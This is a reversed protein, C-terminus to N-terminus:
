NVEQINFRSANGHVVITDTGGQRKVVVRYADGSTVSIMFNISATQEGRGTTRNYTIATTGTVSSFSGGSPKKQLEIECDSRSSGSTIKTTVDASFRFIGTKNITVEGASEVFVSNNSNLTVTDFDITVFTGTFAASDSSRFAQFYESKLAITGSADPVTVTRDATPDTIAITLEHADGTAGEFKLSSIPDGFFIESVNNIKFQDAKIDLVTKLEGAKQVKYILRSDETGDTMDEIKVGMSGYVIEEGADNRGKFQVDGLFDGDAPSASNRDLTLIPAATAGDDTSTLTGNFSGGGGGSGIGLNSPTIKKMTGGDDILVFDADSSSTTTTPTDSNGTTLVTGTADPLTITRDSTPDTVTLTTENSDSTAGEFRINKGTAINLGSDIVYAINVNNINFSISQGAPSGIITAGASSQLFAYGTGTAHDIHGFSAYDTFIGGLQNRGIQSSADTDIAGSSLVVQGTADPLTITRDATPDAVTLTTENGDDTSGEFSLNVGTHLAVNKFFFNTGYGADYYTTMTGNINAQLRLLGDESGDTTDTIVSQIKAYTTENDGADEGKFSITGLLDNTAPSSSNRTLNFSPGETADTDYATLTMSPDVSSTFFTHTVNGDSNCIDFLKSDVNSKLQLRTSANDGSQQFQWSRDTAFTLLADGSNGGTVTLGGGITADGNSDQLVVTGSADPLTITRDATPGAVTLSTEFDNYANGEFQIKYAAGIYLDRYFQVLNFSLRFGVMEGGNHLVMFDMQGYEAGDTVGSNKVDIRAYEIKEDADNEAFWQIQGIDDSNAPSASNRYLSLTPAATAGADTSLLTLDGNFTIDAKSNDSVNRKFIAMDLDQPTANGYNRHRIIVDDENNSTADDGTQLVLSTQGAVAQETKIQTNGDTGHSGSFQINSVGFIANSQMNLLRSFYIQGGGGNFSAYQTLTGNEMAKIILQASETGDSVDTLDTMMQIYDVDQSNDNRGRFIIEGIDDSDAPSASNRYLILSPDVSAGADTSEITLDQYSTHGTSTLQLMNVTNPSVTGFGSFLHTGYNDGNRSIYQATGDTSRLTVIENTGEAILRINATNDSTGDADDCLVDIGTDTTRLRLEGNDYLQVANTSDNTDLLLTGDGLELSLNTAQLKLNGTGQERIFSNSGNHFIKLDSDTGFFASVNDDFILSDASYDFVINGNTGFTTIDGNRAIRMRETATEWGGNTATTGFSIGRSFSGANTLNLSNDNSGGFNGTWIASTEVGGDLKFILFANDGETDNDSDAEIVLKTDGSSGTLSAGDSETQFRLTTGYYLRTEAGGNMDFNTTGSGTTTEIKFRNNGDVGIGSKATVGGGDQSYEIYANDAEDSNTTDAELLLVADGTNGHIKAGSATTEFTKVHNHYLEVAGGDLFKAIDNGGLDEILLGFDATNSVNAKIQYGESGDNSTFKLLSNAGTTMRLDDVVLEGGITVGTSTTALKPGAGSHWLEAVGTNGNFKAIVGLTSAKVIELDNPTTRYLLSVGDTANGFQDAAFMIENPGSGQIVMAPNSNDSNLTVTSGSPVELGAVLTGVAYGTGSTNVTTTPETQLDKFLKFKGSDSADRFLGAYLDQSGSTDYLGYFGIDVVDSSNNSNALIILPDQVSLTSSNVTTTTGSVTLNGSITVNGSGDDLLVTGTADPFTITRDGTPDVVALTTENTDDTSGEFNITNVKNINNNQMNLAFASYTQGAGGNFAMMQTLTGGRMVLLDLRGDESGDSADAIDTRIQAYEVDEDADNKGRFLVEGIIDDDAPSSSQRDLILSPNANADDSTARIRADGFINVGDSKTQFKEAGAHFLRVNGGQNFIAMQASDAANRFSYLSSKFILAGTGTGEDIYSNAGNHYIRLDGDTGIKIEENDPFTLDGTLTQNGTDLLVTGTADPLKITRDATPTDTILDVNFSTGRTNQWQIRHTDNMLFLYGAGFQVSQVMSGNNIVNFGIRGDETGDTVDETVMRMLAYTVEQDADNDAKFNIIAENHFDSADSHDNSIFNLVPGSNATSGINVTGSENLVVDGTADPLTITRTATPTATILDVDFNTGRTNNWRIIHNDHELFFLGSAFQYSDVLGSGGQQLNIRLRGDETGDTVDATTMKIEAFSTEESASNEAKFLITGEVNFDVADSPDNSKLTLIPGLDATSEITMNGNFKGVSAVNAVLSSVSVNEFNINNATLDTVSITTARLISTEITTATVTVANIKTNVTLNNFTVDTASIAKMNTTGEIVVDGGISTDNEVTLASGSITGGVFANASITTTVTVDTIRGFNDVTFNVMPGYTAASVGSSALNITPNGETGNANSITLPNGVAISRGHINGASVAVIGTTGTLDAVANLTAAGATLTTGDIQLTGTLNIKDTSLQLPTNNGAGTQVNRLSTDLDTNSTEVQLLNKYSNAIKRGTLTSM